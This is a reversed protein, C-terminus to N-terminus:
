KRSRIEVGEEIRVNSGGKNEDQMCKLNLKTQLGNCKNNRGSPLTKGLIRGRGEKLLGFAVEESLGKRVMKAM